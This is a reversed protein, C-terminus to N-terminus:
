RNGVTSGIVNDFQNNQVLVKYINSYGCRYTQCLENDNKSIMEICEVKNNLAKLNHSNSLSYLAEFDDMSPDNSCMKMKQIFISEIHIFCFLNKLTTKELSEPFHSKEM